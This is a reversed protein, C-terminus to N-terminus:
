KGCQHSLFTCQAFQKYNSSLFKRVQASLWVANPAFEHGQCRSKDVHHIATYNTWARTNRAYKHSHKRKSLSDARWATSARECILRWWYYIGKTILSNPVDICWCYIEQNQGFEAWGSRSLAFISLYISLMNTPYKISTFMTHQIVVKTHWCFQPSHQIDRWSKPKKSQFM